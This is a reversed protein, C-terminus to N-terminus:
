CNEPGTGLCESSFVAVFDCNEERREPWVERFSRQMSKERRERTNKADWVDEGSLMPPKLGRAEPRFSVDCPDGRAEAHRALWLGGYAVCPSCRIWMSNVTRYLSIHVALSVNEAQGDGFLWIWFTKDGLNTSICKSM